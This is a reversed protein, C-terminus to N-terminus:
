SGAPSQVSTHGLMTETELAACPEATCVSRLTSLSLTLSRSIPPLHCMCSNVLSFTRGAIKEVNSDGIYGPLGFHHPSTHDCPLSGLGDPDRTACSSPHRVGQHVKSWSGNEWLWTGLLLRFSPPPHHHHHHHHDILFIPHDDRVM